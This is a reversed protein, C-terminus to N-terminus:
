AVMSHGNVNVLHAKIRQCFLPRCGEGCGERSPLPNRLGYVFVRSGRNLVDLIVSFSFIFAFVMSGRALRPHCIFCLCPFERGEGWGEGLPLPPVALNRAVSPIVAGRLWGRKGM